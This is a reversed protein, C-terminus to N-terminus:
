AGQSVDVLNLSWVPGLRQWSEVRCQRTTGLGDTVAVLRGTALVSSENPPFDEDAVEIMGVLRPSRGGGAAVLPNELDFVGVTCDCIFTGFDASGGQLDSGTMERFAGLLYDSDAM